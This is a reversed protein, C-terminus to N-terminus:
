PTGRARTVTAVLPGPADALCRTELTVLSADGGAPVVFPLAEVGSVTRTASEGGADLTVSCSVESALTIEYAGPALPALLGARARVRRGSLHRGAFDIEEAPAFGWAFIGREMAARSVSEVLAFGQIPPLPEAPAEFAASRGASRGISPFGLAEARAVAAPEDPTVVFRAGWRVRLLEAAARAPLGAPSRGPDLLPGLVPDALRESLATEPTRSLYGLLQPRGHRLQRILNGAGPGVDVVAGPDRSAAIAAMAEDPPSFPWVSVGPDRPAYEVLTLLAASAAAVRAAGAGAALRTFAFAAGLALPLSVLLVFRNVCGGSRLVPFASELFAYPLRVDLLGDFVRPQPGLSVVLAAAGAALAFDLERAGPARRRLAVGLTLLLPAFGLYAAGESPNQHNRDTLPWTARSLELIRAPVVLSTLAVSCWRAEHAVAAGRADRAVRAAYPLVAALAVAAALGIAALARRRDRSRALEFVGFSVAAVAGLLALYWDTYALAALALGAGVAAGLRAPPRCAVVLGELALPIWGTGLLNLHGLARASRAPFFAFVLAGLLAGAPSAGLRRALRYLATAALVYSLVVLADYALFFGLARALLAGPVTNTLSLTHAALSAGEPFYLLKTALLPTKGRLAADVHHLNWLNQWADGEGIVGRAWAGRVRLALLALLASAAAVGASEAAIRSRM